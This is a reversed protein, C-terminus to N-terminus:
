RLADHQLSKLFCVVRETEAFGLKKHLAISHLNDTTTDSALESFGQNKAWCECAHMLQRGLGRHRFAPHVYWAELYPVAAHRSGEAFNRINLEVFGAVEDGCHAILAHQIDHSRGSFYDEIDQRHQKIDDPWLENRMQAWVTVDQAQAPRIACEPNAM